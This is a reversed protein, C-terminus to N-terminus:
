QWIKDILDHIIRAFKPLNMMLYDLFKLLDESDFKGGNRKIKELKQIVQDIKAIIAVDLEDHCEEKIKRLLDLSDDLVHNRM